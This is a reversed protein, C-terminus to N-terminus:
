ERNELVSKRFTNAKEVSQRPFLLSQNPSSPTNVSKAFDAIQLTVEESFLRWGNRDRDVEVLRGERIWRLLTLRHIGAIKAVEGARYFTQGGLNTPMQSIYAFIHELDMEKASIRDKPEGSTSSLLEIM